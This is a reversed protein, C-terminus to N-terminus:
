FDEESVGAVKMFYRQLGIKLPQNGHVPISLHIECEKKGYIHHSGKIRLLKWGRAELLKCFEKGSLSKM